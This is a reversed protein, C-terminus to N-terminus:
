FPPSKNSICSQFIEGVYVTSLAPKFLYVAGTFLFFVLLLVAVSNLLNKLICIPCTSEPNLQHGADDLLDLSSGLLTFYFIFAFILWKNKM